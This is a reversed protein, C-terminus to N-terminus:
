QPVRLIPENPCVISLLLPRIESTTESLRTMRMRLRAECARQGFHLKAAGEEM